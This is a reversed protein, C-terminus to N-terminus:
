QHLQFAAFSVNFRVKVKVKPRPQPGLYVLFAHSQLLKLTNCFKQVVSYTPLTCVTLLRDPRCPTVKYGMLHIHRWM